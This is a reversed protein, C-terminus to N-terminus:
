SLLNNPGEEPLVELSNKWCPCPTDKPSKGPRPGNPARHSTERLREAAYLFLPFGSVTDYFDPVTSKFYHLFGSRPRLATRTIKYLMKKQLLTVAPILSFNLFAYSIWQSKGKTATYHFVPVSVTNRRIHAAQFPPIIHYLIKCHPLRPPQKRPKEM